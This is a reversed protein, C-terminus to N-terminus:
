SRRVVPEGEVLVSRGRWSRWAGRLANPLYFMLVYVPVALRLHNFFFRPPTQGGQQHCQSFPADLGREPCPVLLSATAVPANLANLVPGWADLDVGLPLVFFNWVLASLAVAYGLRLFFGQIAASSM